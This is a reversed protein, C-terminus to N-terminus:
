REELVVPMVPLTRRGGRPLPFSVPHEQLHQDQVEHLSRAEDATSIQPTTADLSNTQLSVLGDAYEGSEDDGYCSMDEEIYEELCVLYLETNGLAYASQSTPENDCALSQNLTFRAVDLNIQLWISLSDDGPTGRIDCVYNARLACHIRETENTLNNTITFTANGPRVLEDSTYTVNLDKVLWLNEITAGDSCAPGPEQRAASEHM